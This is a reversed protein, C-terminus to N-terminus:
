LRIGHEMSTVPMPQMKPIASRDMGDVTVAVDQVAGHETDTVPMRSIKPVIAAAGAPIVLAGGWIIMGIDTEAVLIIM